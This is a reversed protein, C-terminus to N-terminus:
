TSAVGRKLHYTRWLTLCSGQLRATRRILRATLWLHMHQITPQWKGPADAFVLGCFVAFAGALANSDELRPEALVDHRGELAGIADHHEGEPRM